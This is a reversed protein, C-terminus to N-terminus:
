RLPLQCPHVARRPPRIPADRPHQAQADQSLHRVEGRVLRHEVRQREVRPKLVREPELRALRVQRPTREPLKPRPQLSVVRVTREDLLQQALRIDRGDRGHPQRRAGLPDVRREHARVNRQAPARRQQGLRELPQEVVDRLRASLRQEIGMDAVPKRGLHAPFRRPRKLIHRAPKALHELEEAAILVDGRALGISGRGLHERLMHQHRRGLVVLRRRAARRGFAASRM